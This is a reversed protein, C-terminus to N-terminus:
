RCRRYAAPVPRAGPGRRPRAPRARRTRGGGAMRRPCGRSPGSQRCRALGGIQAGALSKQDAAVPLPPAEQAIGTGGVEEGQSGGAGALADAGDQGIQEGGVARHDDDIGLALVGADGAGGSRSAAAEEDEIGEGEGVLGAGGVVREVGELGVAEIKGLVGGRKGVGQDDVRGALDLLGVPVLLGLRQDGAEDEEDDTVLLGFLAMEAGQALM